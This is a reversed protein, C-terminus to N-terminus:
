QSGAFLGSIPLAAADFQTAPRLGLLWQVTRIISSVSVFGDPASSSVVPGGAAVAGKAGGIPVAFVVMSDYSPHEQIAETLRSLESDQAAPTGVLRAVTLNALSGALRVKDLFDEVPRGGGFGYIEARLSADRANSWLTGAPPTAARGATALDKATLRGAEVAPGLKAFFDTEIGSTIWAMQGLEGSASPVYGALLASESALRGWSEGRADTLLLVVHSVSNPPTALPTTPGSLNEVAASTLFGLQEPTLAPLISVLGAQQGDGKGNLYAIGGDPLGAVGIPYWAAPLAGSSEPLAEEIDAVIITNNGANAVFLTGGDLSLGLASPISGIPSDPLPAVSRIDLLEYRNRETIGFTWLNDSHTCAAFLRAPYRIVSDGGSDSGPTEVSGEAVVIDAPHGGVPLREVLQRDSLRYLGLSAEGWHSIILHERDPSLRARYPAVGTPFEGLVLGSQTNIVVARDRLIDLAYLIRGDADMRVDGILSPCSEACQNPIPFEREVALAGNRFSLEWVSGRRGGGVYVKDGTHNFALGLWADPLEVRSLEARQSLDIVSVSPTEFGAQLVLLHRGDASLQAAMPLSKVPIQAGAPSIRQGTPLLIRPDAPVDLPTQSWLAPALGSVALLGFVTLATARDPGGHRRIQM